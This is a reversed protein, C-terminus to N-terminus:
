RLSEEPVQPSRGARAGRVVRWGIFGLGVALAVFVLSQRWGGRAKSGCGPRPVASICDSLNRNEPIFDNAVVTTPPPAAPGPDGAIAGDSGTAALSVVVVVAAALLALRWRSM